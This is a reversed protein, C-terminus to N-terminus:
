LNVCSNWKGKCHICRIQWRGNKGKKAIFSSKCIICVAEREWIAGKGWKLRREEPTMNELYKHMSESLRKLEDPTKKRGIFNQKAQASRRMREDESITRWNPDDAWKKIMILSRNKCVEESFERGKLAISIKKGIARKEEESRNRHQLLAKNRLREKTEACLRGCGEGGSSLNYGLESYLANLSHIWFEERAFLSEESCEEVLEFIFNSEGFKNWANQLYNNIHIGRRLDSKHQRWRGFVNISKGVYKRGDTINVIKYIGIKNM